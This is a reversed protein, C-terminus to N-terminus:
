TLSNGLGHEVWYQPGREDYIAKTIWLPFHNPLTAESSFNINDSAFRAAGRWADLRPNQALHVVPRHSSPRMMQLERDLRDSFGRWQSHSGTVFINDCLKQPIQNTKGLYDILEVIGMRDKGVMHPQFLLEPCRIREMNLHMQAKEAVDDVKPPGRFGYRSRTLFSTKPDPRDVLLDKYSMFDPDHEALLADLEEM